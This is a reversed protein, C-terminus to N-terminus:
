QNPFAADPLNSSFDAAYRATGNTLRLEDVYGNLTYNVDGKNSMETGIVFYQTNGIDGTWTSSGQPVGDLYIRFANVDRVFAIHHWAGLSVATTSTLNVAYSGNWLMGRLKGNSDIGFYVQNANGDTTSASVQLIRALTSRADQRVWAEMTWSNGGLAMESAASPTFVYDGAGDM